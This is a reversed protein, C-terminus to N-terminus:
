GAGVVMVTDGVGSDDEEGKDEAEEKEIEVELVEMLGTMVDVMDVAEVVAESVGVLELDGLVALVVLMDAVGDEEAADEEAAAGM